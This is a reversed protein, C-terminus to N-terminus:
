KAQLALAKKWLELGEEQKGARILMTAQEQLDVVSETSPTPPKRAGSLTQAVQQSATTGVSDVITQVAARFEEITNTQPLANTKALIAVVPNTSAFEAVVRLREIEAQAAQAQAQLADLESTKSKLQELESSTIKISEDRAQVAGEYEALKAAMEELQAKANALARDNASQTGKLRDIQKQYEALKVSAQQLEDMQGTPAVGSTGNTSTIGAITTDLTGQGTAEESM